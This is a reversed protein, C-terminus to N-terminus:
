FYNPTYMMRNSRELGLAKIHMDVIMAVGNVGDPLKMKGGSDAWEIKIYMSSGGYTSLEIDFGRNTLSTLLKILFFKNGTFLIIYPFKDMLASHNDSVFIDTFQYQVIPGYHDLEDM